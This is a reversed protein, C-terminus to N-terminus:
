ILLILFLLLWGASPPLCLSFEIMDSYHSRHNWCKSPWLCVCHTIQLSKRRVNPSIANICLVRPVPVHYEVSTVWPQYVASEQELRLGQYEQPLSLVGWGPYPPLGSARRHGSSRRSYSCVLIWAPLSKTLKTIFSLRTATLTQSMNRSMCKLHHSSKKMHLIGQSLHLHNHHPLHHWVPGMM